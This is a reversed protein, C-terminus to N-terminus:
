ADVIHWHSMYIDQTDTPGSLGVWRSPAIVTKPQPGLYAAWWSFSSNAIVFYRYQSMLYLAMYDTPEDVFIAGAFVPQSRCWGMDDSFVLLQGDPNYKRIETIAREYYAPTIVDHNSNGIYDTRRVHVVIAHARVDPTLLATHKQEVATCIHEPPRFLNVIESSIDKFYTESQFFGQLFTAYTPIPCYSFKPEYWVVPNVHPTGVYNAFRHAYTDFYTSRPISQTTSSIVLTYGNTKAHAYATAIQFLQNCLGGLLQVFCPPKSESM